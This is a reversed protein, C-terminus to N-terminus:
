PEGSGKILLDCLSGIHFAPASGDRDREDFNTLKSVTHCQPGIGEITM